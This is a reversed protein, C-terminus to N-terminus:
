WGALANNTRISSSFFTFPHSAKVEAGPQSSSNVTFLVPGTSKAQAGAVDQTSQRSKSIRHDFTKELQPRSWIPLIPCSIVGDEFAEVVNTGRECKGRLL